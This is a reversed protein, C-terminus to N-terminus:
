PRRRPQKVARNLGPISEGGHIERVYMWNEHGNASSSRVPRWGLREYLRRAAFNDGRVGLKVKRVGRLSMESTFARVLMEGTGHRRHDPHVGITMLSAPPLAPGPTSPRDTTMRAAVLLRGVRWIRRLVSAALHPDRVVRAVIAPLAPLFRRYLFVRYHHTVNESGCVFGVVEGSWRQRCIWGCGQPDDLFARFYHRLFPVGMTALFSDGFSAVHVRAVADIDQSTLPVIVYACESHASPEPYANPRNAELQHTQVANKM